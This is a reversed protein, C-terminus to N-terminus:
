LTMERAFSRVAMGPFRPDIDGAMGRGVDATGSAVHRWVISGNTADYYYERLGSPNGQQVGCGQLGPRNLHPGKKAIQHGRLWKWQWQHQV